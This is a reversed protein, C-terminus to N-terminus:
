VTYRGLWRYGSGLGSSCDLISEMNQAIKAQQAKQNFEDQFHLAWKYYIAEKEDLSVNDINGDGALLQNRKQRIGESKLLIGCVGVLLIYENLQDPSTLNTLPPIINWKAVTLKMALQIDEEKHEITDLLINEDVTDRLFMRIEDSTLKLTNTTLQVPM